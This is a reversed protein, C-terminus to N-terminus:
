KDRETLIAIPEMNLIRVRQENKDCRFSARLPEMTDFHRRLMGIAEEEAQKYVQGVTCDDGWSGTVYMELTVRVTAKAFREKRPDSAM